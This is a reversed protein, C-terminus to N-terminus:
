FFLVLCLSWWGVSSVLQLSKMLSFDPKSLDRKPKKGGTGEGTRARKTASSGDGEIGGGEGGGEGGGGYIDGGLEADLDVEGPMDGDDDEGTRIRGAAVERSLESSCDFVVKQARDGKEPLPPPPHTLTLLTPLACDFWYLCLCACVFLCLCSCVFQVLVCAFRMCVLGRRLELVLVLVCCAVGRERGVGRGGGEERRVLKDVLVTKLNKNESRLTAM